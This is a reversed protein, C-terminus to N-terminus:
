SRHSCHVVVGVMMLNGSNKEKPVVKEEEDVAM